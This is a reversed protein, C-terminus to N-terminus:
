GYKRLEDIYSKSEDIEMQLEEIVKEKKEIEERLEFEILHKDEIQADLSFSLQQQKDMEKSLQRKIDKMRMKAEAAEMQLTHNENKLLQLRKPLQKIIMRSLFSPDKRLASLSRGNEDEGEEESTPVHENRNNSTTRSMARSNDNQRIPHFPPSPSQRPIEIRLSESLSRSSDLHTTGRSSNSNINAGNNSTRGGGSSTASPLEPELRLLAVSHTITLLSPMWDLSNANTAEDAEQLIRLFEPRIQVPAFENAEEETTTPFHQVVTEQVIPLPEDDVSPNVEVLHPQSIEATPLNEQVITQEPLGTIGNSEPEVVSQQVNTRLTDNEEPNVPSANSTASEVCPSEIHQQEQPISEPIAIQDHPLTISTTQQSQSENSSATENQASICSQDCEAGNTGSESCSIEAANEDASINSDICNVKESTDVVVDDDNSQGQSSQQIVNSSKINNDLSNEKTQVTEACIRSNESANILERTASTSSEQCPLASSTANEPEKAVAPSPPISPQTDIEPAAEEESKGSDGGITDTGSVYAADTSISATEEDSM